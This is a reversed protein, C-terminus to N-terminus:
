WAGYAGGGGSKYGKFVGTGNIFDQYGARGTGGFMNMLSLASFFGMPKSGLHAKNLARYQAFPFVLLFFLFLPIVIYFVNSEEKYIDTEKIKGSALDSVVSIVDRIGDFYLDKRFSEEVYKKEIKREAVQTFIHKVEHGAVMEFTRQNKAFLLLIAHDNESSSIQWKEALMNAYDDSKFGRISEVIAVIINIHSSDEFAAVKEELSIREQNSLIQAFDLINRITDPRDPLREAQSTLTLLFLVLFTLLRRM